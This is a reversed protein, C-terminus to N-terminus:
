DDDRNRRKRIFVIVGIAVVVALILIYPLSDLLVGTDPTAVLNNTVVIENNGEQVTISNSAATGNFTMSFEYGTAEETVTLTAGIPM